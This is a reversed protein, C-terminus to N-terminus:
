CAECTALLSLKKLGLTCTQGGMGHCVALSRISCTWHNIGPSAKWSGLAQTHLDTTSGTTPMWVGVM